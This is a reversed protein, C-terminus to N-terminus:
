CIRKLSPPFLNGQRNESELEPNLKTDFDGPFEDMVEEIEELTWKHPENENLTFLLSEQVKIKPSSEIFVGNTRLFDRLDKCAQYNAIMFTELKWDAFDGIFEKWLRRDRTRRKQKSNIWDVITGNLGVYVPNESVTQQFNPIISKEFIQDISTQCCLSQDSPEAINCTGEENLKAM